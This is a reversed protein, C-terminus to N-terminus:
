GELLGWGRVSDLVVRLMPSAELRHTAYPPYRARLASIVPRLETTPEVLEAHGHCRLWALRSWDEDWRDVLLTVRPDRLIDRVRALDRPDASTKPKDDLPVHLVPPEDDGLAFCVPVLRPRGDRTITALTATRAQALFRRQVPDLVAM